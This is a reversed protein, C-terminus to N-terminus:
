AREDKLFPKMTEISEQILRVIRLQAKVDDNNNQFKFIQDELTKELAKLLGNVYDNM